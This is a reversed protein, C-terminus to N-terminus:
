DVLSHAALFQLSEAAARSGSVLAGHVTAAWANKVTAEGAWFLPPTSQALTLRAQHAGPAATSYGGLAYPDATWHVWQAAAPELDSRDLETKLTQLGYQLATSEGMAGLERAYDGTAFATLTQGDVGQGASPSWWMPPTGASYFAEIGQPLVPQEFWYVLKLAAGMRLVDIAAQKEPPLPPAFTVRGSKLVGVPLTVIASDGEYVDGAVTYVRVGDVAWDIREVVTNLRIDLGQALHEHIRIYGDLIRFDGSGASTDTWEELAAIASLNHIAEGAANAFSRRTYQLQADTFGIRRLYAELSETETPPPAHPLEWSRTIDFDPYQARAQAMSLLTGDALRM